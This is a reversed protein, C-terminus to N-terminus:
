VMTYFIYANVDSMDILRTFLPCYWYKSRISLSYKCIWWEHKDAGGMFFSYNKLVNPQPVLGKAKKERQHRLLKQLPEVQDYSAGISVCTNDRRKVFLIEENTDSCYDYSGRQQKKMNKYSKLPYKKLRYERLTGTSQFRLNRVHVLLEYGTFLNDFFVNHHCPVQVVDLMNLVVESGLLLVSRDDETTSRGCYLDFNYWYGSVGCLAWLKYGFGIPKSRIFRKLNIRGYYKM